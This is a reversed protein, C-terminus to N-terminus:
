ALGSLSNSFVCRVATAPHKLFTAPFSSKYVPRADTLLRSISFNEIAVNFLAFSSTHPNALVRHRAFVM